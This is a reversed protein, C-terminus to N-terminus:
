NVLLNDVKVGRTAVALSFPVFTRTLMLNKGSCSVSSVEEEKPCIWECVKAHLFASKSFPKMTRKYVVFIAQNTPTPKTSDRWIWEIKIFWLYM